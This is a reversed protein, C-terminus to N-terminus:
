RIKHSQFIQTRGEVAWVNMFPTQIPVPQVSVLRYPRDLAVAVAAAIVAAIEPALGTSVRHPLGSAPFRAAASEHAARALEIWVAAKRLGAQVEQACRPEDLRPLLRHLVALVKGLNLEAPPLDEPPVAPPSIEPTSM